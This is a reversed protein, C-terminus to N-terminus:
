VQCLARRCALREGLEGPLTLEVPQREGDGGVHQDGARFGFGQDVERQRECLRPAEVRRADHIHAGPAARNGDREGYLQGTRSDGGDLEGIRCDAHRLDVRPLVADRFTYAEDQAIQEGRQGARKVDDDGIQWINILVLDGRQVNPAPLWA